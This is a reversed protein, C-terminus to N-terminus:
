KKAALAAQMKQRQEHTLSKKVSTQPASAESQLRAYIRNAEDLNMVHGKKAMSTLVTERYRRKLDKTKDSDGAAEFARIQQERHLEPQNIAAGSVDRVVGESFSSRAAELRKHVDNQLAPSIEGPLLRGILKNTMERPGTTSYNPNEKMIRSYEEHGFRAKEYNERAKAVSETENVGNTAATEAMKYHHHAEALTLAGKQQLKEESIKEQNNVDTAAAHSLIEQKYKNEDMVMKQQALHADTMQGLAKQGSDAGAILGYDGGFLGGVIAPLMGVLATTWSSPADAPQQGTKMFEKVQEVAGPKALEAQGLRKSNSQPTMYKPESPYRDALLKQTIPATEAQISPANAPLGTTIATNNKNVYPNSKEVQQAAAELEDAASPTGMDSAPMSSGVRGTIKTNAAPNGQQVQQAANELEDTYDSPPLPTGVKPIIKQNIMKETAM